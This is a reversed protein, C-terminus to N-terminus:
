PQQGGDKRIAEDAARRGAEGLRGWQPGGDRRWSELLERCHNTAPAPAVPVGAHAGGWGWWIALAYYACCLFSGYGGIRVSWTAVLGARSRKRGVGLSDVVPLPPAMVPPPEVAPPPPPPPPPPAPPAPILTAEDHVVVRRKRRYGGESWEVERVQEPYVVPGASPVVVGVPVAAGAGAGALDAPTLLLKATIANPDTMPM